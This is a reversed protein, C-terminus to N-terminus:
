IQAKCMKSNGNNINFGTKNLHVVELRSCSIGAVCTCDSRLRLAWDMRKIKSPRLTHENDVHSLNECNQWFSYEQTM